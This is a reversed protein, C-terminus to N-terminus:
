FRQLNEFALNEGLGYEGIFRNPSSLSVKTPNKNTACGVFIDDDFIDDVFIDNM